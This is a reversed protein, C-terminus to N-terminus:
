DWVGLKDVGVGAEVKSVMHKSEIDSDIQSYTWKDTRKLNWVYTIDCLIQRERYSKSWKTHFDTPRDMNRCIANKRESEHSLLIGKYKHIVDEKDEWRDIALWNAEMDQSNYITTSHVNPHMYRKLNSNERSIHTPIPNCSWITVRNKTKWAVETSNELITHQGLKSWKRDSKVGTPEGLETRFKAM